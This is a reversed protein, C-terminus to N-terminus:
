IAKTLHQVVMTRLKDKPEEEVSGLKPRLRMM